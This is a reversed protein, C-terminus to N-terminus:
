NFEILSVMQSQKSHWRPRTAFQAAQQDPQQPAARALAHGELREEVVREQLARAVGGTLSSWKAKDVCKCELADKDRAASM